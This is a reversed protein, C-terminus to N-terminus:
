CKLEVDSTLVGQIAEHHNKPKKPKPKPEYQLKEIRLLPQHANHTTRKLAPAGFTERRGREDDPVARDHRRDKPNDAASTKRRDDKAMATSLSTSTTSTFFTPNRLRLNLDFGQRPLCLRRWAKGPRLVSTEARM